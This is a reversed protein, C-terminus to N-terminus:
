WGYFFDEWTGLSRFEVFLISMETLNFDYSTHTWDQSFSNELEEPIRCDYQSVFESWRDQKWVQTSTM